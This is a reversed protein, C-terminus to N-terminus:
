FRALGVAVRVSVHTKTQTAPLVARLRWDGTLRAVGAQVGAQLFRRRIRELTQLVRRQRRRSDVCAATVRRTSDGCLVRTGTLGEAAGGREAM